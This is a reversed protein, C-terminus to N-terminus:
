KTSRAQLWGAYEELTVRGDKNADSPSPDILMKKWEGATLAGDKNADSRSIIRKAYDIYKPQLKSAEIPKVNANSKATSVTSTKTGNESSRNRSYSSDESMSNGTATRTAGDEIAALCEQPSIAGDQDRDFKFFERILDDNWTGSYEAMIIQRDHDADQEAFWGPLGESSDAAIRRYSNRGNYPDEPEGRRRNDRRGDDRSRAQSQQERIDAEAIRRRAYRVALEAPSLKGDGNRDFDMPNGSWASSMEEKQLYGDRNRDYRAMRDRATREDVPTVQVAFLDGATGFGLVPTPTEVPEFGQVLAELTMAADLQERSADPTSAGRSRSRSMQERM